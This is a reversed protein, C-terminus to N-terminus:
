FWATELGMFLFGKGLDGLGPLFCCRFVVVAVLFVAFFLDSFLLSGCVSRAKTDMVLKLVEAPEKTCLEPAWLEPAWLEAAAEAEAEGRNRRKSDLRTSETRGWVRYGTGLTERLVGSFHNTMVWSFPQDHNWTELTRLSVGPISSFREGYETIISPFLDESAKPQSQTGYEPRLGNAGRHICPPFWFTQPYKRQLIMLLWPKRVTTGFPNRGDLTPSHKQDSPKLSHYPGHVNLVM